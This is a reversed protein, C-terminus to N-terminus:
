RHHFKAEILVDEGIHSVNNIILKMPKNLLKPHDLHFTDLGGGLIKPAVFLYLKDALSQKIFNMVTSAGGEVLM